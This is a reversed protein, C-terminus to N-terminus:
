SNHVDREISAERNNILQMCKGQTKNTTKHMAVSFGFTSSFEGRKYLPLRDEINYASTTSGCLFVIWLSKFILRM